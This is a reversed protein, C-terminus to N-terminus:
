KIFLQPFFQPRFTKVRPADDDDSTAIEAESWGVAKNRDALRIAMNFRDRRTGSVMLTPNDYNENMTM